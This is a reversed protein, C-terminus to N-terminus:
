SGGGPQILVGVVAAAVSSILAVIRNKRAEGGREREHDKEHDAQWQRACAQFVAQGQASHNLSERLAAFQADFHDKLASLDGVQNDRTRVQEARLEAVSASLATVAERTYVAHTELAALRGRHNQSQEGGAEATM